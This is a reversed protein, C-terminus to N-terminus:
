IPIFRARYGITFNIFEKKIYNNDDSLIEYSLEDFIILIVNPYIKEHKPDYKNNDIFYLLAINILADNM